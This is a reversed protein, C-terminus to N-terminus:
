MKFKVITIKAIILGNRAEFNDGAFYLKAEFHMIGYKVSYYV